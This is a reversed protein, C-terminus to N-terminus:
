NEGTLPATSRALDALADLLQEVETYDHQASLAVRLRAQGVAVTPPRIAPVYFGAKELAQSWALATAAEGVWLPQIPTSSDLLALGLQQAGHRFQTIRRQLNERREDAGRALRVAALSAAALAPPMATTYIYPRSFQGLGEILEASGAVFAGCVGLAKGLTAMLIPVQTAPLGAAILSGAGQEGLVGLGHADDILLTAQYRAGLDALQSLPAIDGDMSFVADSALLTPTATSRALQRAAGDMDLHPYRKLHAGSLRAGDLLSAHNLRDQVCSEGYKLLADTVGLNAMFGTSFLLARERGTWDALEEELEAHVARHGGLLHAATAGVGWDRAAEILAQRLDPHAALGLYDNSAFSCLRQGALIITTSDIAEVTRLRRLLGNRARESQRQALRQILDTRSM